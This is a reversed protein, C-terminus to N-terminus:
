LCSMFRNRLDANDVLAQRTVKTMEIHLFGQHGLSQLLQGQVNTTGGLEQVDIPYLAVIQSLSKKLCAATQQVWLPPSKHGASVIIDTGVAADTARSTQEYGHLQIIKGDPYQEAFAKTFAQWYTDPTHAMDSIERRVTNWQAAKFGGTLFLSSVIKGTNLDTDSHPAQLLRNNKVQTNIAFFGRGNKATPLEQLTIFNGQNVQQMALVQWNSTGTGMFVPKLLTNFTQLENPPAVIVSTAGSALKLQADLTTAAQVSTMMLLGGLLVSIRKLNLKEFFDVNNM